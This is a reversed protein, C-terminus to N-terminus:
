LTRRAADSQSSMHDRASPCGIPGSSVTITKAPHTQPKTRAAPAARCDSLRLFVRDYDRSPDSHRSPLSEFGRPLKVGGVRKAPPHKRGSLWRGVSDPDRISKIRGWGSEMSLTRHLCKSAGPRRRHPAGASLQGETRRRARFALDPVRQGVPAQALNEKGREIADGEM